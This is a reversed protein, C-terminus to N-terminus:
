HIMQIMKHLKLKRKMMRQNNEKVLGVNKLMTDLNRVNSASFRRRILKRGKILIEKRQLNVKKLDMTRAKLGTEEKLTKRGKRLTRGIMRMRRSLKFKCLKNFQNENSRESVMLEHAELSSQLEENKLTKVDKSEQIAVVIFDFRSSLTRMIKEVIQQDTITESCAKMQNVLNILKSIYESIKQDDEMQMLEFKRRLSQLKILKVKDDGEHYTSLIDWAEKSSVTKSIREFNGEDLSQQILFLAKCDKKKLEKHANRKVDIANAALEAVGDQVIELLDQAGFLNKMMASWREWNRAELIPLHTNFSSSGNM